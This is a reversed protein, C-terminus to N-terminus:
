VGPVALGPDCCETGTYLGHNWYRSLDHHRVVHVGHAPRDQRWAVGLHVRRPGRRPGVGVTDSWGALLAAVMGQDTGRHRLRDSLFRLFRASRRRQRHLDAEVPEGDSAKAAGFTRDDCGGVDDASPLPM